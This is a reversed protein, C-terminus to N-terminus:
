GGGSRRRGGVCCCGVLGADEDEVAGGGGEGLRVEAPEDRGALVDFAPLGGAVDEFTIEVEGEWGAEVRVLGEKGVATIGM